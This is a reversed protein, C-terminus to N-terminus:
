LYFGYLRWGFILWIRDWLRLPRLRDEVGRLSEETQRLSRDVLETGTLEVKSDSGYNCSRSM